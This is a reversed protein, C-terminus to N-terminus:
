KKQHSSFLGKISASVGEVLSGAEELGRRGLTGIGEAVSKINVGLEGAM